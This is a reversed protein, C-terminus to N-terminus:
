RDTGQCLSVTTSAARQNRAPRGRKDIDMSVTGPRPLSERSLPSNAVRLCSDFSSSWSVGESPYSQISSKTLNEKFKLPNRSPSASWPAQQPTEPHSGNQRTRTEHE